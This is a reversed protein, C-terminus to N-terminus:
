EEIWTVDTQWTISSTAVSRTVAASYTLNSPTSTQNTLMKKAELYTINNQCKIKLTETERQYMPGSQDTHTPKRYVSTVLGKDTSQLAVDLFPLQRNQETEMTFKIRPHQNNLHQLLQAPDDQKDITTFTDDVKRYWCLPQFPATSLASEEFSTMYIETILPSLPSGMPLGHIQRYIKDNFTFYSFDFCTTALNIISNITLSTDLEKIRTQLKNRLIELAEQLPINTFLDVVDYSVMIGSLQDEKLKSIFASSDSIFAKGDKGLPALIRSLHQATSYFVSGRSCVLVRAKPPNKHIKITARGYPAQSNIPNLKNFVIDNIERNEHLDKLTKKHERELKATPDKTIILYTSSDSLSNNILQEFDQTDMIVAAKGKDAETITIAKDQRLEAIAQREQVSLNSRPRPSKKITDIIQHRLYDVNGNPALQQLGSEISTIFADINIKASVPVYKLGKALLSTQAETLNNSSLNVVTKIGTKAITAKAHKHVPQQLKSLKKIHTLKVKQNLQDRSSQSLLMTKHYLDPQLTDELKSIMSERQAELDSKRRRIQHIQNKVLLHSAKHLIKDVAPSRHVPSSIQLGKPVLNSDRCRLLFTLQNSTKVCKSVTKNYENISCVADDGHQHRIIDKLPM